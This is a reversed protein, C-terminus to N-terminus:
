LNLPEPALVNLPESPATQLGAGFVPEESPATQLGAGFVPKGQAFHVLVPDLQFSPDIMLLPSISLDRPSAAWPEIRALLHTYGSAIASMVLESCFWRDKSGADRRTIFRFVSRWDYPCGIEDWLYAEVRAWDTLGRVAFVDAYHSDNSNWRRAKVGTFAAEIVTLGDPLLIAAHSYVSRTQFRILWPIFGRNRYLLIRGARGEVPEPRSSTSRLSTSPGTSRNHPEANL